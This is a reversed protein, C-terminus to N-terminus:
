SGPASRKRENNLHFAGDVVIRDGRALGSMVQRRGEHEAGLNVLRLAYQNQGTEVFVYDRNEDRVVAAGPVALRREPRGKIFMTALMAPKFRRDANDLEMRVTITRTEPNVIAAIFSLTGALRDGPLSAIEAEVSEGRRILTAQQEPVEAVLWVRSLDAVLFMTDAPQVVQGQTVKRELVTGSISARVSAQSNVSRDATLGAVADEAMGLVMLQGRAASVEAEAQAFESQRRQLEARGIVDAEFLQEARQAARQALLRQSYARLFALQATSLEVSNLTALRQGRKVDQGPIVELDTIRGTVSAGIRALRSEDAEVRGSVRLVDRFEADEVPAVSLRAALPAAPVILNPDAKAVPAPVPKDKCGGLVLAAALTLAASLARSPLM